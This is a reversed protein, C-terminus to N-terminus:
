AEDTAGISTLTEAMRKSIRVRENHEREAVMAFTVVYENGRNFSSNVVDWVGSQVEKLMKIFQSDNVKLGM